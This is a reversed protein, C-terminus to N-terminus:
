KEREVFKRLSNLNTTENVQFESCNRANKTNQIGKKHSWFDNGKQNSKKQPKPIIELNSKKIAACMRHKITPRGSTLANDVYGLEGCNM